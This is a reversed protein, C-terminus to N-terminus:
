TVAKLEIGRMASAGIMMRANPMPQRRHDEKESNCVLLSWFRRNPDGPSITAGMSWMGRGMPCAARVGHLLCRGNRKRKNLPLPGQNGEARPAGRDQEWPGPPVLIFPDGGIQIIRAMVLGAMQTGIRIPQRRQV